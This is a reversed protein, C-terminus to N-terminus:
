AEEKAEDITPSTSYIEKGSHPLYVWLKFRDETIKRENKELMKKFM